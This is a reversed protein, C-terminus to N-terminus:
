RCLPEEILQLECFFEKQEVSLGYEDPNTFMDLLIMDAFWYPVAFVIFFFIYLRSLWRWFVASHRGCRWISVVTWVNVAFYVLISPAFVVLSLVVMPWLLPSEIAELFDFLATEQVAGFMWYDYPFVVLPLLLLGYLWFASWLPQEGRWYSLIIDRVWDTTKKAM